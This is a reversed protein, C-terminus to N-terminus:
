LMIGLRQSHYVAVNGVNMQVKESFWRAPSEANQLPEADAIILQVSQM